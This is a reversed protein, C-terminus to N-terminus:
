DLQNIFEVLEDYTTVRLFNTKEAPTQLNQANATFFALLCIILLTKQMSIFESHHKGNHVEFTFLDFM